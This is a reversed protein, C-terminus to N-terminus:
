TTHHVCVYLENEKGNLPGICQLLSLNRFNIRKSQKLVLPLENWCKQLHLAQHFLM